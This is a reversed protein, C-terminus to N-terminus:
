APKKSRPFLHRSIKKVEDTTPNSIKSAYQHSSTKLDSLEKFARESASAGKIRFQKFQKHVNKKETQLHHKPTGGSPPISSSKSM